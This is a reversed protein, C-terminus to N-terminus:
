GVDGRVHTTAGRQEQVRGVGGEWVEKGCRGGVGGPLRVQLWNLWNLPSDHCYTNNNGLKSHGYEDGMHIMPVGHAMLLAVSFNRM